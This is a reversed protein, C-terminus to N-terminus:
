TCHTRWILLLGLGSWDPLSQSRRQRTTTANGGPFDKKLTVAKKMFEDLTKKLINSFKNITSAILFWSLLGRGLATEGKVWGHSMLLFPSTECGASSLETSYFCHVSDGNSWEQAISSFSKFFETRWKDSDMKILHMLQTFGIKM